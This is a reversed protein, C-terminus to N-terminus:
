NSKKWGGNYIYPTAKVWTGNQYVYPTAKNWGGSYVRVSGGAEKWIAYLNYSTGPYDTTQSTFYYSQGPYYRNTGSTNSSWGDFVFGQRTPTNTPMTVYVHQTNTGYYIYTGPGGTGGNDNYSINLYWYKTEPQWVAYLTYYNYSNYGGLVGVQGGMTYTASTSDSAFSWGLFTYGSRTPAEYPIPFYITSSLSDNYQTAPAGSGGNANFQLCAYYYGDGTDGGGGGSSGGSTTVTQSGMWTCTGDTASTNYGVNVVYTTGSSLGYITYNRTATAAIWTNEMETGGTTRCYVKFYINDGSPTIRLTISNADYSSVYYSPM